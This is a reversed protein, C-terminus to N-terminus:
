LRIFVDDFQLQCHLYYGKTSLFEQIQKTSYNNEITFVKIKTRNFDISRLVSL